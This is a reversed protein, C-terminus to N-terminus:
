FYLKVQNDPPKWDTYEINVSQPGDKGSDLDLLRYALWSFWEFHTDGGEKRDNQILLKFNAHHYTIM